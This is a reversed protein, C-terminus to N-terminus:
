RRGSGKGWLDMLISHTMSCTRQKELTDIDTSAMDCVTTEGKYEATPMDPLRKAAVEPNRMIYEDFKRRWNEDGTELARGPFWKARPLVLYRTKATDPGRTDPWRKEIVGLYEHVNEEDAKLRLVHVFDGPCFGWQLAALNAVEQITFTTEARGKSLGAEIFEFLGDRCQNFRYFRELDANAYLSGRVLNIDGVDFAFRVDEDDWLTM